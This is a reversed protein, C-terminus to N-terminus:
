NKLINKVEAVLEIPIFNDKECFLAEDDNDIDQLLNKDYVNTFIIIPLKTARKRIEQYFCIGTRLGNESQNDNFFKKGTPMMIDLIILEVEKKNNEFYELASDVDSKFEVTYSSLELEQVYSRMRRKEDDIFLIM